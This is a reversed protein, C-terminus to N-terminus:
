GRILHNNNGHLRRLPSKNASYGELCTVQKSLLREFLSEQGIYFGSLTTNTELVEWVIPSNERAGEGLFSKKAMRGRDIQSTRRTLRLCVGDHRTVRYFLSKETHGM